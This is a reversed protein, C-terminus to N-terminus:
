SIAIRQFYHHYALSPHRFFPPDPMPETHTIASSNPRCVGVGAIDPNADGVEVCENAMINILKSIINQPTISLTLTTGGEKIHFARDPVSPSSFPSGAPLALSLCFIHFAFCGQLTGHALRLAVSFPSGWIAALSDRRNSWYGEIPSPYPKNKIGTRLRSIVLTM